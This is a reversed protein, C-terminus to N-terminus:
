AAKAGVEILKHVLGAKDLAKGLADMDKTHITFPKKKDPDIVIFPGEQVAFWETMRLHADHNEEYAYVRLEDRGSDMREFVKQITSRCSECGCGYIDIQHRLAM